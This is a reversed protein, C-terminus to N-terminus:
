NTTMAYMYTIESINFSCTIINMVANALKVLYYYSIMVLRVHFTHNGDGIISVIPIGGDVYSVVGLLSSLGGHSAGEELCGLM